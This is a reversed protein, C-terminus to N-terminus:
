LLPGARPLAVATVLVMQCVHSLQKNPGKGEGPHPVRTSLAAPITCGTGVAKELHM